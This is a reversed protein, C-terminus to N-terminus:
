NYCVKQFSCRRRMSLKRNKIFYWARIRDTYIPKALKIRSKVSRRVSSHENIYNTLINLSLFRINLLTEVPGGCGFRFLGSRSSDIEISYSLPKWWILPAQALTEISRSYGPTAQHSILNLYGRNTLVFEQVGLFVWVAVWKSHFLKRSRTELLLNRPTRHVM